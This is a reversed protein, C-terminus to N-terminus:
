VRPVSRASVTQVHGPVDAEALKEDPDLTESQKTVEHLAVVLRRLRADVLHAADHAGVLLRRVPEAGVYGLEFGARAIGSPRRRVVTGAVREDAHLLGHDPLHEIRERDPTGEVGGAAGAAVGRVERFATM